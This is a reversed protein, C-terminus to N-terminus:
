TVAQEQSFDLGFRSSWLQWDWDNLWRPVPQAEYFALPWCVVFQAAPIDLVATAPLWRQRQTVGTRWADDWSWRNNITVFTTFHDRYLPRLKLLM